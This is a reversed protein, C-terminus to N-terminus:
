SLVSERRKRRYKYYATAMIVAGAVLFGIIGLAGTHPFTAKHNEVKIPDKSQYDLYSGKGESMNNIDLKYEVLDISKSFARSYVEPKLDVAKSTDTIKGTIEVVLGKETVINSIKPDPQTYDNSNYLSPISYILPNTSYQQNRPNVERFDNDKLDAVTKNKELTAVKITRYNDSVNWNNVDLQLLTDEKDFTWETHNPNIVLRQKFTGKDKDVELIESTLMGNAGITKSAKLPDKELVQIKGKELKFEKIYGPFKSYGEPAKTEKLAYFGDKSLNLSFKGKDDSKVTVAKGDVLYDSYNLDTEKEKYLVKFEAGPLIKGNDDGDVKVFEIPKNNVVKVAITESVEQYIESTGTGDANPVTVKQYIKGSEDVKLYAM